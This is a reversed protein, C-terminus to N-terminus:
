GFGLVFTGRHILGKWEHIVKRGCELEGMLGLVFKGRHTLGERGVM